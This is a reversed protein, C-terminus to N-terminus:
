WHDLYGPKLKLRTMGFILFQYKFGSQKVSMM